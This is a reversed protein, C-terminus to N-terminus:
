HPAFHQEHEFRPGPGQDGGDSFATAGLTLVALLALVALALRPRARVSRLTTRTLLTRLQLWVLTALVRWGPAVAAPAPAPPLDATLPPMEDLFRVAYAASLREEGEEMTLLGRVVADHLTRVVAERDADSARVRAPSPGTMGADPQSMTEEVLDPDLSALMGRTATLSRHAQRGSIDHRRLRATGYAAKM